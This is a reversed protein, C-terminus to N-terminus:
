AVSGSLVSPNRECADGLCIQNAAESQKHSVNLVQSISDRLMWLTNSTQESRFSDMSADIEDALLVSLVRNTLVQGLAIRIALNACAKGSGSLTDLPQQDVTVNFDEDVWIATRQGGTMHNILHSGVRNLSPMLHQKILSRLVNMLDRIKRYSKAKVELGEAQTTREVYRDWEAEFQAHQREYDRAATWAIQGAEARERAGALEERLQENTQRDMDWAVWAERETEFRDMAQRWMEYRAQIAEYDPMEALLAEAIKLRTLLCVREAAQDIMIRFVPIRGEPIDPRPAPSVAEMKEWEVLDVTQWQRLMTEFRADSLLPKAPPAIDPLEALQRRLEDVKAGDLAFEHECAPCEVCKLHDLQHQLCRREEVIDIARWAAIGATCAAPSAAPLPHQQLWRQAECSALFAHWGREAADLEAATHPAREPLSAIRARLEEVKLRLRRRETADCEYADTTPEVPEARPHALFTEVRVLDEVDSRLNAVDIEASPAYNEPEAPEDPPFLGARLGSATADLIKAEDLAWRSVVDLADIGLVNDVLRKREAPTMSGLREVDGQKICHAMDFVSLGYGLIEVIKGNVASVGTVIPDSDRFLEAKKMSRRVEYREGKITFSARMTLSSYDDAKGRLAASGFLAFRLMELIFSKGTENAGTIAWYGPEFTLSNTLQRGTSPFTVDYTLHHFM